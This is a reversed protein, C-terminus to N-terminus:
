HRWWHMALQVLILLAVLPFVWRSLRNIDQNDHPKGFKEMLPVVIILALFLTGLIIFLDAM